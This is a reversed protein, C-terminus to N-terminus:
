LARKISYIALWDGADEAKDALGDIKDVFDRLHMKEKLTLESNFISWKLRTSIQDCEEEHL